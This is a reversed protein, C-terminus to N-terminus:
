LFDGIMELISDGNVKGNENKNIQIYTKIKDLLEYMQAIKFKIDKNEDQLKLNAQYM